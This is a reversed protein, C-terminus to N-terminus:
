TSNLRRGRRAKMANVPFGKGKNKKVYV